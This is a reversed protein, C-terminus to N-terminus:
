GKWFLLLRGCTNQLFTNKFTECFECSCVQSPTEKETFNCSESRFSEKFFVGVCTNQQSNESTKLFMNKISRRRHSRKWFALKENKNSKQTQQKNQIKFETDYKICKKVNANDNYTIYLHETGSWTSQLKTSVKHFSANYFINTLICNHLFAFMTTVVVLFWFYRFTFVLFCPLLWCIVQFFLNCKDKFTIIFFNFTMLLFIQAYKTGFIM